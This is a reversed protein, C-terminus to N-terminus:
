PGERVLDRYAYWTAHGMLPVTIVLGVLLTAFGLAALLVLLGSWVIMAPINTSVAKLSTRMAEGATADRDLILPVAVVSLSFAILALLAGALLYQLLQPSTTSTLLGGYLVDNLTPARYHFLSRLLFESAVFWALTMAALIGGFELIATGHRSFGELSADFTAPEGASRRRSLECLGVSVVPGALMFGSVLAAIYYPHTGGILLLIVGFATILVGHAISAGGLARLDRWACGVWHLPQSWPVTRVEFHLRQRPGVVISAPM